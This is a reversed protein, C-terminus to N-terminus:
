EVTGIKDLPWFRFSTKGVIKDKSILGYYRSDASIKRNDGLVLYYNDPIVDYNCVEEIEENTVLKDKKLGAICIDELTFNDTENSAYDDEIEEDNIYLKNDKYEIKEGPLGYVRKIIKEEGNKIVVIDYREIDKNVYSIKNLLLLERDKLTDDMSPGDVKVPTAIFTRFLVVVLIIIIYSMVDKFLDNM